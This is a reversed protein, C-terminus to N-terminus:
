CGLSGGNGPLLVMGFGDRTSSMGNATSTWSLTSPNFIESSPLEAPGYPGGYGGAILATGDQLLVIEAFQRPVAMSNLLLSWTQSSLNYLECTALPPYSGDAGGAALVTTDPLVLMAFAGRGTHLAGVYSWEATAPDYIGSSTLWSSGDFGGAALVTGDSLLVMELYRRPHNMPGNTSIWEQTQPMYIESSALYSTGDFGGAALITGDPLVVVAFDQRPSNMPSATPVWTGNALYLESIAIIGSDANNTTGGAVLATGDNLRVLQFGLRPTHMTGTATWNSFQPNYLEASAQVQGTQDNFGGAALVQGLFPASSPPGQIPEHELNVVLDDQYFSTGPDVSIMVLAM